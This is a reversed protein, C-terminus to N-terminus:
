FDDPYYGFADYFSEPCEHGYLDTESRHFGRDDYLPSYNDEEEYEELILDVVDGHRERLADIESEDLVSLDDVFIDINSLFEHKELLNDFEYGYKDRLAEKMEDDLEDFDLSYIDTSNIFEQKEILEDIVYGYYDRLATIVDDSLESYDLNYIDADEVFEQREILGDIEYGYKNRLADITDSDLLTFDLDHINLSNIYEQKEILEDIEYGHRNRLAEITDEDLISYDVTYIDIDDLPDPVYLHPNDPIKIGAASCILKALAMKTSESLTVNITGNSSPALNTKKSSAPKNEAASKSREKKYSSATKIEEEKSSALQKRATEAAYADLIEAFKKVCAEIEKEKALEQLESLIKKHKSHICVEFGPDIYLSNGNILEMAATVKQSMRYNSELSDLELLTLEISESTAMSDQELIKQVFEENSLAINGFIKKAAKEDEKTHKKLRPPKVIKIPTKLMLSLAHVKDKLMYGALYLLFAEEIQNDVISYPNESTKKNQLLIYDAKLEQLYANLRYEDLLSSGYHKFFLSLRGMIFPIDGDISNPNTVEPETFPASYGALFWSFDRNYVGASLNHLIATRAGKKCRRYFKELVPLETYLTEVRQIKSSSVNHQLMFKERLYLVESLRKLNPDLEAKSRAKADTFKPPVEALNESSCKEKEIRALELAYFCAAKEYFYGKSFCFKRLFLLDDTNDASLFDEYYLKEFLQDLQCFSADTVLPALILPKKEADKQSDSSFLNAIKKFIGM